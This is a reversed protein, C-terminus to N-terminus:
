DLLGDDYRDSKRMIAMRIIDQPEVPELTLREPMELNVCLYEMMTRRHSTWDHIPLRVPGTSQSQEDRQPYRAYLICEMFQDNRKNKNVEIGRQLWIKTKERRTAFDNSEPKTQVYVGIDSLVRTTSKADKSQYSRKAVDPDGYHIPKKYIAFDIFADLDDDTYAYMSDLPQGVLPFFFQIPYEVNEYSDVLRLRGNSPNIQWVGIATGDLGFDWSFFLPWAPDYPFDGVVAQKIEPYVRGEISGEWNIMIERAFDEASRRSKETALWEPTKRPDLQHALTVIKIVEGDKGQRLRKAKSPRIGPTTLVVRCQTTDATAGWVAADNDWFAFEDLMIAKQRGGRSFNPNSSEGSISNGNEPNMLSMYNLHKKQIFGTPIAEPELHNIFYELKGFLSEEKNSLEESDGKTNDVYDEKRSGVLFNSGPVFRWFWFFVALVTYTAGMERCKEIFLDHGNNIADVLEYVLDYQFPFLHFPFHYPEAKPNFTWLFKNIFYIPDESAKLVKREIIATAM